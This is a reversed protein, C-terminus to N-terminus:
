FVNSVGLAVWTVLGIAAIMAESPGTSGPAANTSVTASSSSSTSTASAMLSSKASSATTTMTMGSSMANPMSMAPDMSTSSMSMGPMSMATDMSTSMGPMSMQALSSCIPSRPHHNYRVVHHATTPHHQWNNIPPNTQALVSHHRLGLVIATSHYHNQDIGM